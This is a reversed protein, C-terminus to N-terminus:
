ESDSGGTKTDSHSDDEARNYLLAYERKDVIGLIIRLIVAVIGIIVVVKWVSVIPM